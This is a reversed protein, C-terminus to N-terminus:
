YNNDENIVTLIMSATATKCSYNSDLRECEPDSVHM